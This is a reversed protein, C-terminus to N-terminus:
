QAESVSLYHQYRAISQWWPRYTFSSLYWVGEGALSDRCRYICSFLYMLEPQKIWLCILLTGHGSSFELKQGRVAMLHAPYHSFTIISNYSWAEIEDNSRTRCRSDLISSCYEQPLSFFWFQRRIVLASSHALLFCHATAQHHRFETDRSVIRMSGTRCCTLLCQKILREIQCAGLM